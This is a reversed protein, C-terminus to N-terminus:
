IFINKGQPSALIKSKLKLASMNRFDTDISVKDTLNDEMHNGITIVCEYMYGKGRYQPLLAFSIFPSNSLDYIMIFGIASQVLEIIWLFGESTNSSFNLTQILKDVDTITRNLYKIGNLNEVVEPNRFLNLLFESDTPKAARLNCRKTQLDM